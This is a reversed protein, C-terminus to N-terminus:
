APGAWELITALHGLDNEMTCFFFFVLFFLPAFYSYVLSLLLFNHALFSIKLFDIGGSSIYCSLLLHLLGYKRTYLNCVMALSELPANLRKSIPTQVSSLVLIKLRKKYM